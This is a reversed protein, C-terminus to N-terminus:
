DCSVYNAFTENMGYCNFDNYFYVGQDYQDRKSQEEFLSDMHLMGEDSIFFPWDPNKELPQKCKCTSTGCRGKLNREGVGKGSPISDLAKNVAEDEEEDGKEHNDLGQSGPWCFTTYKFDKADTIQM